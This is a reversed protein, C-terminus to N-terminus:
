SAKTKADAPPQAGRAQNLQEVVTNYQTTLENLQKARENYRVALENFKEVANQLRDGVERIRDNAETLRQDRLQVAATWSAISDKLQDREAILLTVSQTSILLKDSTARLEAHARTIQTRFNELDATLGALTRDQETLRVTQALGAKQLVNIDLNLARNARWQFACLVALAVVGALNLWTLKRSM